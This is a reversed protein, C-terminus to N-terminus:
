IKFLSIKIDITRVLYREIMLIDTKDSILSLNQRHMSRINCPSVVDTALLCTIIKLM